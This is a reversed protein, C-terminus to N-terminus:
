PRPVPLERVVPVLSRLWGQLAVADAETDRLLRGYAGFPLLIEWAPVNGREITEFWDTPADRLQAARYMVEVVARLEAVDLRVERNLAITLVTECVRAKHSNPEVEGVLPRLLHERGVITAVTGEVANTQASSEGGAALDADIDLYRTLLLPPRGDRFCVRALVLLPGYLSVEHAFGSGRHAVGQLLTDFKEGVVYDVTDLATPLMGSPHHVLRLTVDAKQGPLTSPRTTHVLFIGDNDRYHQTRFNELGRTDMRTVDVTTTESRGDYQGVQRHNLFLIVASLLALGAALLLDFGADFWPSSWVTSPPTAGVTQTIGIATLVGGLVAVVGGVSLWFSAREFLGSQRM